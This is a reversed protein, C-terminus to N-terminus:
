WLYILDTFPAGSILNQRLRIKFVTSTIQRTVVTILSMEKMYYKFPHAHWLECSALSQITINQWLKIFHCWQNKWLVCVFLFNIFFIKAHLSFVKQIITCISCWRPKEKTIKVIFKIFCVSSCVHKTFFFCNKLSICRNHRVHIFEVTSQWTMLQNFCILKWETECQCKASWIQHLDNRHFMKIEISINCLSYIDPFVAHQSTKGAHHRWWISAIKRTVPGKHPSNGPWRHIGRM